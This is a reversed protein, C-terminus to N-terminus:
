RVLGYEEGDVCQGALLTVRNGSLVKWEGMRLALFGGDADFVVQLEGAGEAKQIGWHCSKIAPADRRSNCSAVFASFASTAVCTQDARLEVTGTSTGPGGQDLQWTGILARRDPADVKTCGCLALFTSALTFSRLRLVTATM